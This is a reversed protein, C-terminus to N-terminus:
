TDTGVLDWDDEDDYGIIWNVAHHWEQVVAADLSGPVTKGILNAHRVAWHLRYLLDVWGLIERKPRLRVAQQLRALPDQADMQQPLLALLAKLSSPGGPLDIKKVLGACWGLFFMSERCQAFVACQRMGEDGEPAAGFLFAHERASLWGAIDRQVIYNRFRELGTSDSALIAEAAGSVCWLAVIRLLVDDSSRLKVEEDSETLPLQLNIRIGRKHLLTESNTKRNEPTM